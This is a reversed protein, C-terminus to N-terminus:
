KLYGFVLGVLEKGPAPMFSAFRGGFLHLWIHDELVEHILSHMGSRVAAPLMPVDTSDHEDSLIQRSRDPDTQIQRSRRYRLRSGSSIM